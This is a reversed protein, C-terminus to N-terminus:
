LYKCSMGIVTLHADASAEQGTPPSSAKCRVLGGDTDTLKLFTVSSTTVQRGDDKESINSVIKHKEGDSLSIESERDLNPIYIWTIIPAPLGAARCTFSPLELLSLATVGNNVQIESTIEPEAANYNSQHTYLRKFLMRVLM